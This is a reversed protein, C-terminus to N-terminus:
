KSRLLEDSLRNSHLSLCTGSTKAYFKGDIFEIEQELEWLRKEADVRERKREEEIRKTEAEVRKCEEELMEASEALLEEWRQKHNMDTAKDEAM